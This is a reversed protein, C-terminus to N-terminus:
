KKGVKFLFEKEDMYLNEYGSKSIKELIVDIRKQTAVDNKLRSKNSNKNKYYKM